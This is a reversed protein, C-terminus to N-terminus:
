SGEHAAIAEMNDTWPLIIECWNELDGAGGGLKTIEGREIKITFVNTTNDGWEREDFRLTDGVHIPKGHMDHVGIPIGFGVTNQEDCM